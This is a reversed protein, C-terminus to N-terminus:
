HRHEERLNNIKSIDWAKTTQLFNMREKSNSMKKAQTIM